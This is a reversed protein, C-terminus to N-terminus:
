NIVFINYPVPESVTESRTIKTAHRDDANIIFVGKRNNKTQDTGSAVARALGGTTIELAAYNDIGIGFRVIGQKIEKECSATGVEERLAGDSTRDDYHPIVYGDLLGLGSLTHYDWDGFLADPEVEYSQWDSHARAFPYIAGASIGTVVKGANIHKLLMTDIGNPKWIDELMARTNGGAVFIVDAEGINEELEEQRPMVDEHMQLNHFPPRFLYNHLVSFSRDPIGLERYAVRMREIYSGHAEPTAKASPVMLVSPTGETGAMDIGHRLLDPGKNDLVGGGILLANMNGPVLAETM